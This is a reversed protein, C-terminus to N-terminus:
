IGECNSEAKNRHQGADHCLGVLIVTRELSVSDNEIAIPVGHRFVRFTIWILPNLVHESRQFITVYVGQKPTVSRTSISGIVVALHQLSGSLPDALRAWPNSFQQVLADVRRFDNDSFGLLTANVDVIRKTDVVNVISENRILQGCELSDEKQVEETWIV